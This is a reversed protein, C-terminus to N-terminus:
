SGDGGMWGRERVFWGFLCRWWDDVDIMVVVRWMCKALGVWWLDMLGALDKGLLLWM